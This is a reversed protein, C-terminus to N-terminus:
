FMLWVLPKSSRRLVLKVLRPTAQWGRFSLTKARQAVRTQRLVFCSFLMEVATLNADLITLKSSKEFKRIRRNSAPLRPRLRGRIPLGVILGERLPQRSRCRRDARALVSEAQTWGIGFGDTAYLRPALAARGTEKQKTYEPECRLFRHEPQDSNSKNQGDCSGGLGHRGRRKMLRIAHDRLGVLKWRAVGGTLYSFPATWSAPCIADAHQHYRGPGAFRAVAPTGCPTLAKASFVILTSLRAM